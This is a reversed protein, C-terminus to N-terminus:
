QGVSRQRGRWCQRAQGIRAPGRRDSGLTEGVALGRCASGARRTGDSGNGAKGILAKGPRDDVAVRWRAEGTRACGNWVVGRRWQRDEGTSETGLRAIRDAVATGSGDDARTLSGLGASVASGTRM